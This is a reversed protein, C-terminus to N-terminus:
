CPVIHCFVLGLRIKFLCGLFIMGKVTRDDVGVLFKGMQLLVCLYVYVLTFYLVM